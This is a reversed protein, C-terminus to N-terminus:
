IREAFYPPFVNFKSGCNKCMINTCLSGEPGRLFGVKHCNPCQNSEFIEAKEFATMELPLSVMVRNIAEAIELLGGDARLQNINTQFQFGDRYEIKVTGKEMDGWLVRVESGFRTHIM